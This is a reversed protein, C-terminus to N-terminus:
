AAVELQIPESLYTIYLVTETHIWKNNLNTEGYRM